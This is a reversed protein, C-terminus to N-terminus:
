KEPVRLPRLSGAPGLSATVGITESFYHIRRLPKVSPGGSGFRTDLSRDDTRSPIQHLGCLPRPDPCPSECINLFPVPEGSEGSAIFKSCGQDKQEKGKKKYALSATNHSSMIPGPLCLQCPRDRTHGADNKHVTTEPYTTYYFGYNM